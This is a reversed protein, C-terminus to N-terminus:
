LSDMFIRDDGYYVKKKKSSWQRIRARFLNTNVQAHSSLKDDTSPLRNRSQYAHVM